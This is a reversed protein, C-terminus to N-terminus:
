KCKAQCYYCFTGSSFRLWQRLILRSKTGHYSILELFNSTLCNNPHTKYILHIYHTWHIKFTINLFQIYEFLIYTSLLLDSKKRTRLHIQKYSSCLYRSHNVPSNQHWINRMIWGDVWIGGGSVAVYFLLTSKLSSTHYHLKFPHCTIGCVLEPNVCACVYPCM